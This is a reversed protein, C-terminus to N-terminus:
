FSTFCVRRLEAEDQAFYGDVYARALRGGGLEAGDEAADDGRAAAAGIDEWDTVLRSSSYGSIPCVYSEGDLFRERCTDDCVQAVGWAIRMNIRGIGALVTEFHLASKQRVETSSCSALSARSGM